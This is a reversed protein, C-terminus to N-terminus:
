KTIEMQQKCLRETNEIHKRPWKNNKKTFAYLLFIDNDKRIFAVRKNGFKFEYCGDCSFKLPRIKERNSMNGNCFSYRSFLAKMKREDKFDLKEIFDSAKKLALFRFENEKEFILTLNKSDM